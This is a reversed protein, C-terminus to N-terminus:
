SKQLHGNPVCDAGSANRRAAFNDLYSFLIATDLPKVWAVNWGPFFPAFVAIQPKRDRGM